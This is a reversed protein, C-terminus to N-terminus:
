LFKEFKIQESYKEDIEKLAISDRQRYKYHWTNWSENAYKKRLAMFLAYDHLWFNEKICFDNFEKKLDDDTSKEFEDFAQELVHAKIQHAFAYKAKTNADPSLSPLSPHKIYFGSFLQLPYIRHLCRMM